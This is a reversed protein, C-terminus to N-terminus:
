QDWAALSAQAAVPDAEIRYVAQRSLGTMKAIASIGNDQALLAQVMELQHRSYSPKRGLYTAGKARAHDIGARQAAKTAEAQAQATAAMFGILADRVAQMMPDKTAGDFTMRHIITKM